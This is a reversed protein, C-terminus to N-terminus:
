DLAAKIKAKQEANLEATEILQIIIDTMDTGPNTSTVTKKIIKKDQGVESEYEITTTRNAQDVFVMKPAPTNNDVKIINVTVNEKDALQPDDALFMMHHESTSRQSDVAVAVTQTTNAASEAQPIVTINVEKEQNNLQPDDAMFMMNHESLTRKSNPKTEDVGTFDQISSCATVSFCALILMLYSKKM